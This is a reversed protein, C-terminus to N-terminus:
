KKRYNVVFILAFACIGLLVSFFSGPTAAASHKQQQRDSGAALWVLEKLPLRARGAAGGCL